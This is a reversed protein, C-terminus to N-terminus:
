GKGGIGHKKCLAQFDETKMVLINFPKEADIVEQEDCIKEVEKLTNQIGEWRGIEIGEDKGKMFANGIKGKVGCSRWEKDREKRGIEIGEKIALEVTETHLRRVFKIYPINIGLGLKEMRKKQRDALEKLVKEVKPKM